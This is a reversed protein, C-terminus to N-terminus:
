ALVPGLIAPCHPCRACGKKVGKTVTVHESSLRFVLGVHQTLFQQQGFLPQHLGLVLLPLLLLLSSLYFAEAPKGKCLDVSDIVGGCDARTANRGSVEKSPM